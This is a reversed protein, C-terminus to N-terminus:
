DASTTKELIKMQFESKHSDEMCPCHSVISCALIVPGALFWLSLSQLSHRLSHRQERLLVLCCVTIKCRHPLSRFVKTAAAIRKPSKSSNASRALNNLTCHWDQKGTSNFRGPSRRLYLKNQLTGCHQPQHDTSKPTYTGCLYTATPLHYVCFLEIARSETGVMPEVSQLLTFCKNIQM